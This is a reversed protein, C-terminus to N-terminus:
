WGNHSRKSDKTIILRSDEHLLFGQCMLIELSSLSPLFEGPNEVQPVQLFAKSVRRRRAVLPTGDGPDAMEIPNPPIELIRNSYETKVLQTMSDITSPPLHLDDGLGKLIEQAAREMRRLYFRGIPVARKPPLPILMLGSSLGFVMSLAAFAKSLAGLHDPGLKALLFLTTGCSDQVFHSTKRGKLWFWVSYAVTVLWGIVVLFQRWTKRTMPNQYALYSTASVLGGFYLNLMIAIEVVYMQVTFTSVFLAIIIAFSFIIYADFVSDVEDHLGLSYAVGASAWQLYIGLRIGLGYLDSNGSFGCQQSM